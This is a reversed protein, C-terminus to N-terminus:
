FTTRSMEFLLHVQQMIITISFKKSNANKYVLKGLEITNYKGEEPCSDWHKEVGGAM